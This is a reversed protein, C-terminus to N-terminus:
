PQRNWATDHIRIHGRQRFGLALCTVGVSEGSLAPPDPGIGPAKEQVPRLDGGPDIGAGLRPSLFVRTPDLLTEAHTDLVVGDQVNVPDADVGRGGIHELLEQLPPLHRSAPGSMDRLELADLPVELVDVNQQEAARLWQETELALEKAQVDNRQELHFRELKLLHRAGRIDIVRPVQQVLTAATVRDAYEGEVHSGRDGLLAFCLLRLDEQHHPEVEVSFLVPGLGVDDVPHPLQDM